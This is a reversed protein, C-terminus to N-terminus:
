ELSHSANDSATKSVLLTNIIESMRNLEHLTDSLAERVSASLTEDLLAMETSLQITSLPTRLDHALTGLITRLPSDSMLNCLLAIAWEGSPKLTPTRREV